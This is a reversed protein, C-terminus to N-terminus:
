GSFRQNRMVSSWRTLLSIISSSLSCKSSMREIVGIPLACTKSKSLKRDGLIVKSFIRVANKHCFAYLKCIDEIAIYLVHAM